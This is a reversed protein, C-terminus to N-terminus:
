LPLPFLFLVFVNGILRNYKFNRKAFFFKLHIAQKKSAGLEGGGGGWAGGMELIGGEFLGEMSSAQFEM